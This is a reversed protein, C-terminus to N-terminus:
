IDNRKGGFIKLLILSCVLVVILIGLSLLPSYVVDESHAYNSLVLGTTIPYLNVLKREALFIGCFSYFLSFIVGSFFKNQKRASFIIVPIVAIYCCISVVLLQKLSIVCGNLGIDHCHIVVALILTIAFSFLTELIVLGCGAIIKSLIIWFKSVPIVHINKLTHDTYERNISYGVILTFTFPLFLSFYNWVVGESLGAYSVVSDNTGILQFMALFISFLVSTIGFWLINYRKYKLFETRVLDIM